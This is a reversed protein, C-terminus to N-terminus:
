FGIEYWLKTKTSYGAEGDVSLGRNGQYQKVGEKTNPGFVGDPTGCNGGGTFNIDTQLNRVFTGTHGQKLTNH